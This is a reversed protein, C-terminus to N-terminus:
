SAVSPQTLPAGAAAAAQAEEYEVSIDLRSREPILLLSIGSIVACILIYVAVPTSSKYAAFLAAAILPAPGGAFVSALQYGISSGSYRVPTPFGEAIIAAQPGYQIDHFVLSLAMAIFALVAVRSDLLGFYVFGWIATGIIGVWYVPKRGILDSLHGSLPITIISLASAILVPILIANRDMGLTTTGYAFIFGTYIYFPAQESMRLFASVLVEKPHRKM